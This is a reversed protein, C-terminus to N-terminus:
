GTKLIFKQTEKEGQVKEIQAGLGKLKKSFDEYGRQIYIIDDVVTYGEAALGAIVLAAGARLDPANIKAGTFKTIGDIIATNGEVKISAGMKALEDVYKFRNEFISETVISTGESLALTVAIQPQMDTPFGPYALTKVHTHSLPKSSVVRVADDSEEIECGIELLKASISELHKPIVNKVTVDGKTAAAAFMFTGAEIQDPIVSYETGHLHSVGKIRIVDTGAGKINAGMSNLFNALDVVHPEKAANEIITQGEALVAAMLINITAGVSVVDMYIHSGKLNEATAVIRGHAIKVEAGLAKFGKIHQDIPRSGINCGGPLAVEARHYKGLLAGILYYSARIKKIYENDVILDQIQSANMKVTHRDVHEVHVGIEQMAQMLVNTDRVDPINEIKVTEDTMVVAALIPLAANKAGGIEVEGVLPNGGKIVYQEM